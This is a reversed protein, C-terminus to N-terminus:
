CMECVYSQQNSCPHDNWIGVKRHTLGVRWSSAPGHTREESEKAFADAAQRPGHFRHNVTPIAPLKSSNSQSTTEQVQAKLAQYLRAAAEPPCIADNRGHVIHIRHNKIQNVEDLLQGTASDGHLMLVELAAFPVLVAPTWSSYQETNQLRPCRSKMTLSPKAAEMRRAPDLLRERYAGVLNHQEREWDDSSNRIHDCVRGM